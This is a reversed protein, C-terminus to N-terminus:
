RRRTFVYGLALLVAILLAVAIPPLAPILFPSIISGSVVILNGDDEAAPLVGNGLMENTILDIRGDGNLDGAAGSYALTDGADSGSTGNAGYIETIRIQDTDPLLGPALDISAPWGGSRGFFLHLIGAGPRGLPSGHPSSFALDAIGDADFDGHLATDAAIDGAAGGYFHTLVLGAPPSDLDFVQSRFLM